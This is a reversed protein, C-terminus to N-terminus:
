FSNSNFAADFFDKECFLAYYYNEEVLNPDRVYNDLLNELNSASRDFEPSSYTVIWERYQHNPIGRSALQQGLFAYLRMCPTMAAAIADIEEAWATALLFDRYRCTAPAPQIKEPDIQWTKLYNQHLNLEKLVDDALSHFITFEEIKKTKAAAISYARAFAQLFFTDQAIYFKFCDRDLDGNYIGTIFPHELFKAISDQNKNWLYNSVLM